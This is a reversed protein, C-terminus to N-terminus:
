VFNLAIVFSISEVKKNWLKVSFHVHYFYIFTITLCHTPIFNWGDRIGLKNKPRAPREVALVPGAFVRNRLRFSLNLFVTRFLGSSKYIEFIGTVKLWKFSPRRTIRHGFVCMWVARCYTESIQSLKVTTEHQNWSSGWSGLFVISAEFTTLISEFFLCWAENISIWSVSQLLSLPRSLCSKLKRFGFTGSTLVTQKTYCFYFTKVPINQFKQFKHFNWFDM